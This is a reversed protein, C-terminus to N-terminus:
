VKFDKRILEIKEKAKTFDSEMHDLFEKPSVMDDTPDYDYGPAILALPYEIVFKGDRKILQNKSYDDGVVSSKYNSPWQLENM